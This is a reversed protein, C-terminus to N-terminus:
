GFFEDSFLGNYTYFAISEHRQGPGRGGASTLHHRLCM